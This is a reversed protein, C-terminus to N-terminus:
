KFRPFDGRGAFDILTKARRYHRQVILSMMRHKFKITEESDEPLSIYIPSLGLEEGIKWWPMLGSKKQGGSDQPLSIFDFSRGMQWRPKQRRKRALWVELLTKFTTMRIRQNPYIRRRATSYAHVRLKGFYGTPLEEDLLRTVQKLITARRISLPLEIVLKRNMGEYNAPEGHKLKRVKPIALQEQFLRRGRDFWWIDFHDGLRGFDGVMRAWPEDKKGSVARRYDISERLFAWYWFYLSNKAAALEADRDMDVLPQRPLAKIVRRPTEEMEDTM